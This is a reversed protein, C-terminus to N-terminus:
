HRPPPRHRAGRLRTRSTLSVAKNRTGLVGGHGERCTASAFASNKQFYRSHLSSHMCQARNVCHIKCKYFAVGQQLRDLCCIREADTTEDHNKQKKPSPKTIGIPRCIIAQTPRDMQVTTAVEFTHQAEMGMLPRPLNLHSITGEFDGTEMGVSKKM